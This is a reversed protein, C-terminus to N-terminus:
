SALQALETKLTHCVRERCACTYYLLICKVKSGVGAPRVYVIYLNSTSDFSTRSKLPRPGQSTAVLPGLGKFDCVDKSEM